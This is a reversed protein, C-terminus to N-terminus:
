VKRLANRVAEFAKIEAQRAAEYKKSADQWGQWTWGTFHDATFGSPIDLPKTM